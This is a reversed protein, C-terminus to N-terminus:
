EYLGVPLVFVSTQLFFYYKFYFLFNFCVQVHVVSFAINCQYFNAWFSFAICQDLLLNNGHGLEEGEEAETQELCTRLNQAYKLRMKKYFTRIFFPHIPM